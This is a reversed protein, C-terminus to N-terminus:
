VKWCAWDRRQTSGNLGRCVQHIGATSDKEGGQDQVQQFTQVGSQSKLKGNSLKLKSLYSSFPVVDIAACHIRAICNGWGTVINIGVLGTGNFLDGSISGIRWNLM